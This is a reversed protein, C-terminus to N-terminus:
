FMCTEGVRRASPEYGTRVNVKDARNCRVCRIKVRPEQTERGLATTNRFALQKRSLGNVLKSKSGGQEGYPFSLILLSNDMQLIQSIRAGRDQRPEFGKRLDVEILRLEVAVPVQVSLDFHPEVYIKFRCTGLDPAIWLYQQPGNLPREDRGSSELRRSAKRIHSRFLRALGHWALLWTRGKNRL